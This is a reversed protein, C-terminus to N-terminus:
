GRRTRTSSPTACRFLSSSGSKPTLSEQRLSPSRCATSWSWSSTPGAAIRDRRRRHSPRYQPPGDPGPGPTRSRVPRDGPATDMGPKIIKLAVMRRVPPEQEAMFVVGLGGEGIPRLLKYPGIRTGPGEAIPADSPHGRLPVPPRSCPQLQEAGFRGRASGPPRGIARPRVAPGRRPPPARRRRRLGGGSLRAREAPTPKELAAVFITEESMPRSGQPGFLVGLRGKPPM